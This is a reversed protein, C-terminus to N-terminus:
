VETGCVMFAWSQDIYIYIYIYIYQLSLSLSLSINGAFPILYVRVGLGIQGGGLATQNSHISNQRPKNRFM